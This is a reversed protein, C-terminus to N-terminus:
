GPKCVSRIMCESFDNSLAICVLGTKVGAPADSVSWRRGVIQITKLTNNHSMVFGKARVLGCRKDALSAALADADVSHDIELKITSFTKSVNHELSTEGLQFENVVGAGQYGAAMASPTNKDLILIRQSRGVGFLVEPPIRGFAAEVLRAQNFRENVWERVEVSEPMSLLDQKNLVILDADRLQRQVTDGIYKEDVAAQVTTADVLVVIGELRFARLLSLSKGIAGPVAVGSAEIFIQEAPIDQELLKQLALSLDDGYSCCLCGGSLSIVDGDQAEILEADIPLEGFDNVLVALRLGNANRLIHNVLTTKGSGLYGGIITVPVAPKLNFACDKNM